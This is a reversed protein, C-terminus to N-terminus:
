GQLCFDGVLLRWVARSVYDQNAPDVTSPTKFGSGYVRVRFGEVASESYRRLLVRLTVATGDVQELDSAGSELVNFM